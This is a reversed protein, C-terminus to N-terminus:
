RSKAADYDYQFTILDSIGAFPLVMCPRFNNAILAPILELHWSFGLDLSFFINLLGDDRLFRVHREVNTFFDAGPMLPFLNVESKERQIEAQFLSNGLRSEGMNKITRITRALFLRDYESRLYDDLDPHSWVECGPDEHLHRYFPTKVLPEKGEAYYNFSGLTEFGSQLTEPLGSVVLLGLAKTRAIKGICANLLLNGQEAQKEQHFLYPGFCQVIKETRNFYIIGGIVEKKKNIAVLSQYEGGAVMDLIKGPYKLFPPSHPDDCYQAAMGAFLKLREADPTEISIDELNKAPLFTESIKPYVKEKFVELSVRNNKEIVVNLREVSKSAIMLGMEELDSQREHSITSAINLGRLNMEAASFRFRVKAYYLGNVCQIEM